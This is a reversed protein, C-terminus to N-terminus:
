LARYSHIQEVETAYPVRYVVGNLRGGPTLTVSGASNVPAATLSSIPVECGTWALLWGTILTECVPAPVAYKGALRLVPACDVVALGAGGYKEPVWAWPIVAERLANWLQEQPKGEEAQNVVDPTSLESFIRTVTDVLVSDTGSM